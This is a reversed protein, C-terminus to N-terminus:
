IGLCGLSCRAATTVGASNKCTADDREVWIEGAEAGHLRMHFLKAPDERPINVLIDHGILNTLSISM